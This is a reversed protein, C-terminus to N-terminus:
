IYMIYVNDVHVHMRMCANMRIVYICRQMCMHMCIYLYVRACVRVCVRECRWARSIVMVRSLLAASSSCEKGPDWLACVAEM